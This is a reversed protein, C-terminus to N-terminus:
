ASKPSCPLVISKRKVALRLVLAARRKRLLAMPLFPLGPKTLMSLLPALLAPTFAISPRNAANRRFMTFVRETTEPM